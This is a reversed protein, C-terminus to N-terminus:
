TITFIPTWNQTFVQVLMRTKHIYSQEEVRTPSPYWSDENIYNNVLYDCFAEIKLNDPLIWIWIVCVAYLLWKRIEEEAEGYLVSLCLEKIKWYWALGPHFKCGCIIARAFIVSIAKCAAREFNNMELKLIDLLKAYTNVCKNPLLDYELPKGFRTNLFTPLFVLVINSCATWICLYQLYILFVMKQMM